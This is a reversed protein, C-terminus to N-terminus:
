FLLLVIMRKEIFHHSWYIIHSSVLRIALWLLDSKDNSLYIQYFILTLTLQSTSITCCDCNCNSKLLIESTSSYYKPQDKITNLNSKETNWKYIHSSWADSSISRTICRQVFTSCIIFVCSSSWSTSTSTSTNRGKIEFHKLRWAVAM